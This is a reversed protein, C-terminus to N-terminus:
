ILQCSGIVKCEGERLSVKLLCNVVVELTFKGTIYNCGSICGNYNYCSLIGDTSCFINRSIMNRSYM